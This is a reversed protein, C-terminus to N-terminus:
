DKKIQVTIDGSREYYASRISDISAGNGHMRVAEMLDNETINNRKMVDWKIEGNEVLCQFNGKIYQGLFDLRYALFALLWHLFVLTFGAIISSLFPANGTIARGLISGLVIGLVIDFASHKGFMRKGGIRIMILAIVFVITARIIMQWWLITEEDTGIFPYLYEM